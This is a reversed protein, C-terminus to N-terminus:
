KEPEPVHRSASVIVTAATRGTVDAAGTADADDLPERVKVLARGLPQIVAAALADIQIIVVAITAGTAKGATQMLEAGLADTEQFLRQVTRVYPQRITALCM